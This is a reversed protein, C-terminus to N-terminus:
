RGGDADRQSGESRWKRTRRDWVMTGTPMRSWDLERLADLAEESLSLELVVERDDTGRVIVEASDATGYRQRRFWSRFTAYADKGAESAFATFFAAVPSAVTVTVIWAVAGGAAFTQEEVRAEVGVRGLAIRLDELTPIPGRARSRCYARVALAATVAAATRVLVPKSVRRM